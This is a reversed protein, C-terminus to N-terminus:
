AAVIGGPARARRRKSAPQGRGQVHVAPGADARLGRERPPRPLATWPLLLRGPRSGRLARPRAPRADRARHGRRRLLAREEGPGPRLVGGRAAPEAAARRALGPLVRWGRGPARPQVRRPRHSLRLSPFLHFLAAGGQDGDERPQARAARLVDDLGRWRFVSQVYSQVTGWYRRVNYYVDSEQGWLNAAIPTPEGGLPLDFSDALSHAVDTSIVLTRQGREACLLATAAAVSTKGVGGQGTYVIIRTTVSM